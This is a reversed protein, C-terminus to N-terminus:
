KHTTRNRTVNNKGCASLDSDSLQLPLWLGLLPPAGAVDNKGPVVALVPVQESDNQPLPNPKM